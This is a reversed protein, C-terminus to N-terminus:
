DETEDTMLQLVLQAARTLEDVHSHEKTSHCDEMACALAVGSMGHRVFHNNDSGGFTEIPRFPIGCDECARKVRQVVPLERSMEYAMCGIRHSFTVKVGLGEAVEQFRAKIKEYQELSLTHPNSRIEGQVKCFDSVINRATGGEILGINVTMSAEIRGQRIAAIAKAAAAIANAGTEPAFGAHAPKGEFEATFAFITPARYACTGVPGSLDLVFAEKSKLQHYDFHTAGGSYIEEAVTFLLEIERHPLNKEAITRVAELIASVGAMDDAGLVTNGASEITGDALIVAKKGRSPEVTDLHASFLLPAKESHSETGKWRCYLNGCNGGLQAGADDETVSFGLSTLEETLFQGVQREELSPSDMGVLFQFTEVIRDRNVQKM